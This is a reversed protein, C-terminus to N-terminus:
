RSARALDEWSSAPSATGDPTAPRGGTDAMIRHTCSLLLAALAGESGPEFRQEPLSIGVGGFVSGSQDFLPAALGVAGRIRQGHTVAYGRRRVGALEEELRHPETISRGTVPVLGTREIVARREAEPLFAMIAWGAAGVHIPKWKYMEVVYRLTHTSEVGAVTVIEQRERNYLALFSAEHCADV